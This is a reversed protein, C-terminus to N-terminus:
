FKISLYITIERKRLIFNNQIFEKLPEEIISNYIIKAKISVYSDCM